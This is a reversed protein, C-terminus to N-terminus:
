EKTFFGQAMFQGIYSMLECERDQEIAHEAAEQYTKGSGCQQLFEYAGAPLSWYHIEDQNRFCIIHAGRDPLELTEDQTGQHWQWIVDIPYNSKPVFHIHEQITLKTQMLAEPDYATFDEATMVPKTKSFYCLYYQWEFVAMDYLYPIDATSIFDPFKEGYFSMDGSTPPHKKIYAECKEQARKPGLLATCIPFISQLNESLILRSTNHYIQMRAVASIDTNQQLYNETIESSPSLIHSAFHQQIEKLNPM